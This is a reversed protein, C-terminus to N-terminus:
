LLSRVKLTHEFQDPSEFQVADMGVRRAAEVNAAQDDVFLTETATAGAQRLAHRYIAADPKLVGVEHSLVFGRFYRLFSFRAGIYDFHTRNTNSIVWLQAKGSLSSLWKEPLLLRKGIISNWADQFDGRSVDVGCRRCIEEHFCAEDIRGMEYKEVLGNGFFVERLRVEDIGTLTRMRDAFRSSDLDLLVRGLDLMVFNASAMIM